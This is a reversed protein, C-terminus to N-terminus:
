KQKRKWGKFVQNEYFDYDTIKPYMKLSTEM